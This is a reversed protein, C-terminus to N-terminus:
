LPGNESQGFLILGKVKENTEILNLAVLQANKIVEGNCCIELKERRHSEINQAPSTIDNM